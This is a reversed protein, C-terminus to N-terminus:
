HKTAPVNGLIEPTFLKEELHQNSKAENITLVTRTKEMVSKMEVHRADWIGSVKKLASAHLERVLKGERDYMEAHLIVPDDEAVWYSVYKYQSRTADAPIAQRKRNSIRKLSGM